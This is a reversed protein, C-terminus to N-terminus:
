GTSKLVPYLRRSVGPPSASRAPSPGTPARAQRGRAWVTRCAREDGPCVTPTVAAPGGCRWLPAATGAAIGSTLTRGRGGDGPKSFRYVPGRVAATDDPASRLVHSAPPGLLTALAAGVAMAPVSARTLLGPPLRFSWSVVALPTVDAARLLLRDNLPATGPATWGGLVLRRSIATTWPTARAAPTQGSSPVQGLVPQRLPAAILRAAGAFRLARGRRARAPM